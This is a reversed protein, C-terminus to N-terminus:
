DRAFGYVKIGYKESYDGKYTYSNLINYMKNGTFLEIDPVVVGEAGKFRGSYVLKLDGHAFTEEKKSQVVEDDPSKKYLEEEFQEQGKKMDISEYLMNSGFNIMHYVGVMIITLIVFGMMVEVLTMGRNDKSVQRM